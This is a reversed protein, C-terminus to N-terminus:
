RRSAPPCAKGSDGARHASRATPVGTARTPGARSTPRPSPTASATTALRASMTSLEPCPRHHGCLRGFPHALVQVNVGHKQHKGSYYPRDAAIRDISLLTGDLLVFAKVSATRVAEAFTPALAALVDVAATIYRFATTTGIGFGAM